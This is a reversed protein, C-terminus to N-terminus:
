AVAVPARLLAQKLQDLRTRLSSDYVTDGIRAVLGGILEPHVETQLVVQKGTARELAHRVEAELDPTLPQATQVTVRARNARADALDRYAEAIARLKPFRRKDNVLRLLNETLPGLGLRPLVRDLVARREEVTFVPSELADGLRRGDADMLALFADLDRQISEVQPTGGTDAAIEVMAQAYRNALVDTAM